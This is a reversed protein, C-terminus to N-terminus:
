AQRVRICEPGAWPQYDRTGVQYATPTSVEKEGSLRAWAKKFLFKLLGGLLIFFGKISDRITRFIAQVCARWACGNTHTTGHVRQEFKIVCLSGRVCLGVGARVRVQLVSQKEEVLKVFSGRQRESVLKALDGAITKAKKLKIAHCKIRVWEVAYLQHRPTPHTLNLTPTPTLTLTLAQTQTFSCPPFLLHPQAHALHYQAKHGRPPSGGTRLHQLQNSGAELKWSALSLFPLVPTRSV